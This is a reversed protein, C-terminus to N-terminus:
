DAMGCIKDGGNVGAVTWDGLWDCLTEFLVSLWVFEDDHCDCFPQDCDGVRDDFSSGRPLM